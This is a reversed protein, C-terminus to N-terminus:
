RRSIRIFVFKLSETSHRTGDPLTPRDSEIVAGAFAVINSHLTDLHPLEKMSPLGAEREKFVTSKIGDIVREIHTM